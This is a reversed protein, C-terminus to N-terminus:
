MGELYCFIRYICLHNTLCQIKYLTFQCITCSAKIRRNIGVAFTFFSLKINPPFFLYLSNKGNVLGGPNLSIIMDSRFSIPLLPFIDKKAALTIHLKSFFM